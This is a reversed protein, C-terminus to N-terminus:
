IETREAEIRECLRLLDDYRSLQSCLDRYKAAGSMGKLYFATQMRAEKMGIIEGKDRILLSIHKKIIGLREALTPPPSQPLGCLRERVRQFLWPDGRAARGIMVLDCGTQDYMEACKEASDVDGNGIVPIKVAKKVDAIVSIDASGSYMQKKTRAHVAVAAAGNAEAARAAEVANISNEDWGSRIKVTVPVDSAKVATEVIRGLLAIDKMLASGAGNGAVKPVPCGCNIDIIDPSFELAKKVAKEFFEPESGFLQVAAPRQGGAVSLLKASKSDGYAIGKVSTMEGVVYCAGFSQAIERFALDAVGAMPALAATKEIRVNGIYIYEM